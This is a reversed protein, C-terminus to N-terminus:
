NLAICLEGFDDPHLAEFEKQRVKLYQWTQDTLATANECWNRAAQDKLRVTIDEQGKTEVLWHGGNKLRVAFDNSHKVPSHVM